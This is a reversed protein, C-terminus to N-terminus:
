KRHQWSSLGAGRAIVGIRPKSGFDLLNHAYIFIQKTEFHRSELAGILRQIAALPGVATWQYANVNWLQRGTQAAMDPLVSRTRIEFATM